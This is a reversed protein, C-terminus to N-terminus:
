YMTLVAFGKARRKFFKSRQSLREKDKKNPQKRTSMTGMNFLFPESWLASSSARKHVEGQGIYIFCPAEQKKPQKPRKLQNNQQTKGKANNQKLQELDEKPQNYIKSSSCVFVRKM